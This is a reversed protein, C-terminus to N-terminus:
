IKPKLTLKSISKNRIKEDSIPVTWRENTKWMEYFDFFHNSMPNGSNGAPLVISTADLDSFDVILRMSAGAVSVYSSDSIKQSFSSNLTGPTGGRPIPETELDLSSGIIPIIALPHKMQLTQMDGWKKDGVIVLAQTMAKRAIDIYNEKVDTTINDFWGAALVNNLNEIWKAPVRNYLDPLEDEFVEKQLQDLYVVTLAAFYSSTDSAGGWLAIQEAKESEGCMALIRSLETAFHAMYRDTLDFQFTKMDQVSFKDKSNLLEHMQMIRDAFYFGHTSSRNDPKNNCSAIWGISPNLVHSTKDLSYFEFRSQSGLASPLITESYDKRVPIPTSLQYGINGSSDAYLYNADLAGFNTVIKRFSDYSNTNILSFANTIGINLDVDHGVWHLVIATSDDEEMVVGYDSIKTELIVTSDLYSNLHETSVIRFDKWGNETLYQTKNKNMQITKYDVVDNGGATFAWAATKNHGMVFFPLGPTTIGFVNTETEKIHIGVAYWFQPLRGLELHPDSALMASGSESRSPAVVWANSAESMNFSQLGNQFYQSAIYEQALSNQNDPQLEFSYNYGIQLNQKVPTRNSQTQRYEVTSPAFDPYPFILTQAKEIGVKKALENYFSDRNMLSNSYWTQFSLLALCDTITWTTFDVPLFRYEFPLSKCIEAYKNIGDCYAQLRERNYDSLNKGAEQAIRFHGIKIQEADISKTVSGLLESLKGQAVRRSLDMQFMRDSAHQYGLAFYADNENSAYIQPIGKGDFLIEVEGNIGDLVIEGDTQPISLVLMIYFSVIIGVVIGLFTLGLFSFVKKKVSSAM